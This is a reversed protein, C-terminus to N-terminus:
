GLVKKAQDGYLQTEITDCVSLVDTLAQMYSADRAYRLAVEEVSNSTVGQILSHKRDEISETLRMHLRKHFGDIM